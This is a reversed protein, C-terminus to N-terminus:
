FHRVMLGRLDGVAGVLVLATATATTARGSSASSAGVVGVMM